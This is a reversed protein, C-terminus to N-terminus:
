IRVCEFRASLDHEMSSDGKSFESLKEQNVEDKSVDLNEVCDRAYNVVDTASAFRGPQSNDPNMQSKLEDLSDWLTREDGCIEPRASLPMLKELLHFLWLVNTIPVFAEWQKSQLDQGPMADRMWRYLDFQLDDEGSFMAQDTMQNCVVVGNPLTARSLTYDILTVEINTETPILQYGSDERIKRRQICINSFHMDRHEFEQAEEGNALAEAVGWFVDRIDQVRLTWGGKGDQELIMNEETQPLLADELETGANGMEIFVWTQDDPYKLDCFSEKHDKHAVKYTHYEEKLREPLDGILVEASRFEVFGPVQSMTELLRIESAADTIHTYSLKRSGKGRKPRLPMLKGITPEQRGEKDSLKFVSGFSGEAIKTVDCPSTWEKYWRQIHKIESVVGDLKTLPELHTRIEKTLYSEKASNTKTSTKSSPSSRLKRTRKESVDITSEEKFISKSITPVTSPSREKVKFLSGSKRTPEPKNSFEMFSRGAEDPTQNSSTASASIEQNAVTSREEEELPSAPTKPSTLGNLKAVASEDDSLGPVVVGVFHSSGSKIEMISDKRGVESKKKEILRERKVEGGLELHVEDRIINPLFNASKLGLPQRKPEPSECESNMLKQSVGVEFLKLFLISQRPSSSLRLNKFCAAIHPKRKKGYVKM